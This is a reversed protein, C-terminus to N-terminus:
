CGAPLQLGVGPQLRSEAGGGPAAGGPREPRGDTVEVERMEFTGRQRVAVQLGQAELNLAVRRGESAKPAGQGRLPRDCGRGGAAMAERDGERPILLAASPDLLCRGFEALDCAQLPPGAHGLGALRPGRQAPGSGARVTRCEM